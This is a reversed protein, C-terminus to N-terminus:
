RNHLPNPGTYVRRKEDGFPGDGEGYRAGGFSANDPMVPSLGSPSPKTRFSAFRASGDVTISAELLLLLLFLLSFCAFEKGSGM